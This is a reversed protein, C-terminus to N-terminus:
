GKLPSTKGQGVWSSGPRSLRGSKIYELRLRRLSSDRRGEWRSAVGNAMVVPGSGARQRRVESRQNRAKSKQGRVELRQNRIADFLGANDEAGTVDSNQRRLMPCRAVPIVTTVTSRSGPLTWPMVALEKEETERWGRNTEMQTSSSLRRSEKRLVCLRKPTLMRFSVWCASESCKAVPSCPASASARSPM